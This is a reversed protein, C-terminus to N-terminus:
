SLFFLLLLGSHLLHLPTPAALGTDGSSIIGKQEPDLLLFGRVDGNVEAIRVIPRAGSNIRQVVCCSSRPPQLSKARNEFLGEGSRPVRDRDRKKERDGRDTAHVSHNWMPFGLTGCVCVCASGQSHPHFISDAHIMM